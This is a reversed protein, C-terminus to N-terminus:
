SLYGYQSIEFYFKDIPKVFLIDLDPISAVRGM